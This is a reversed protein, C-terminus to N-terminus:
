KKVKQIMEDLKGKDRNKNKMTPQEKPVAATETKVETKAEMGKADAAPAMGKLAKSAREEVKKAESESVQGQAAEDKMEKKPAATETTTKLEQVKEVAKETETKAETGGCSALLFAASLTLLTYKM